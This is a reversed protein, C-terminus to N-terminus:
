VSCNTPGIQRGRYNQSRIPAHPHRDSARAVGIQCTPRNLFIQSRKVSKRANPGIKLIFICGAFSNACFLNYRRYKPQFCVLWKTKWFTKYFTKVMFFAHATSASYMFRNAERNITASLYPRCIVAHLNAKLHTHLRLCL